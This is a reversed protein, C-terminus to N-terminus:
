CEEKRRQKRKSKWGTKLQINLFNNLKKMKRVKRFFTKFRNSAGHYPVRRWVWLNKLQQRKKYEPTDDVVDGLTDVIVLPKLGKGDDIDM